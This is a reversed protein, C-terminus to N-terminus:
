IVNDLERESRVPKPVIVSEALTKFGKTFDVAGQILYFNAAAKNGDASTSCLNNVMELLAYDLGRQVEAKQLLEIHADCFPKYAIFRAKASPFKNPPNM